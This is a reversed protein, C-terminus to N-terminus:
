YGKAEECVSRLANELALTTPFYSAFSQGGSLIRLSLAGGDSTRGLVMADGADTVAEITRYLLEADCDGFSITTKVDAGELSAYRHTGKAPKKTGTTM